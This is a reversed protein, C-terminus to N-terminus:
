KEAPNMSGLVQSSLGTAGSPGHSPPGQTHAPACARGVAAPQSGPSLGLTQPETEEDSGRVTYQGLGQSPSFSVSAWVGEERGWWGLLGSGLAATIIGGPHTSWPAAPGWPGVPEQGWARLGPQPRLRWTSIVGGGVELLKVPLKHHPPLATM